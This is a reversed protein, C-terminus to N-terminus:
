SQGKMPVIKLLKVRFYLTTYAPISSSAYAGYGLKWPIVIELEDGAQMTYLATRWGEVVGKVTFGRAVKNPDSTSGTTRGETSDFIYKENEKTFYWGEYRCYVSDNFEPYGDSTARLDLEPVEIQSSARKLIYDISTAPDNGAMYSWVKTYNEEASSALQKFDNENKSKWEEDISVEDDDDDLCSSFFVASFSFIFAFLLIYKIKDM